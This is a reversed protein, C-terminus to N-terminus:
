RMIYWAIATGTSVITLWLRYDRYWHTEPAMMVDDAMGQAESGWLSSVTTHKLMAAPPPATLLSVVVMVAMCVFGVIMAGHLWPKLLPHNMFPLFHKENNLMMTPCLILATFMCALVGAANVRKWFVAFIFIGAFPIMLYASVSQLYIFMSKSQGIVPAWLAGLVCVALVAARGILIQQDQSADPRIKLYFDRTVLTGVSNYTASLHGMLAATIGAITLGLLGTPMLNKLLTPYALDGKDLGPYLAAAIIGPGVLILPNMTKLFACFTAGLRGENLNKAAFVRQVLVQDMSFYFTGVLFVGFFVGPWPLDPDTAPKVMSFMSPNLKAHLAAIGGVEHLGFGTLIIAASILIVTQIADTFVVASLGGKMTYLATVLGVGWIVAYQNWGLLEHFVLSAAWLSISVKALVSLLVMFASFCLRVAPGFRRELFEPVTYIRNRIYFPLFLVILPILCFVAIWEYCGYALGTVYGCGALGVFHEASINAAYISAGIFPWKLRRGALFYGESTHQKRGARLGVTIVVVAYVAIVVWDLLNLKM